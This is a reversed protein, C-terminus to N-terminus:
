KQHIVELALHVSAHQWPKPLVMRMQDGHFIIGAELTGHAVRKALCDTRVLGKDKFPLEEGTIRRRKVHRARLCEEQCQTLNERKYSIGHQL